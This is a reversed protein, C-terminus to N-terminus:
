SEHHSYNKGKEILVFSWLSLFVNPLVLFLILALVLLRIPINRFRIFVFKRYNISEPFLSNIKSKQIKFTQTEFFITDKCTSILDINHAIEANCFDEGSYGVISVCADCESAFIRNSTVSLVILGFYGIPNKINKDRHHM